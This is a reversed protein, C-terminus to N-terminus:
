EKSLPLPIMEEAVISRPGTELPLLPEIEKGEVSVKLDRFRRATPLVRSELSGVADNFATMAGGLSKGMRTWHGAMTVLRDHLLDSSCM